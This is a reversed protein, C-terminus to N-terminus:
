LQFCGFSVNGACGLKRLHPLGPPWPGSNQSAPRGSLLIYGQRTFVWSVNSCM